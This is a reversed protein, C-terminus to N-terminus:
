WDAVHPSITRPSDVAHRYALIIGNLAYSGTAGFVALNQEHQLSVYRM